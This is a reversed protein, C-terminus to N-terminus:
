CGLKEEILCTFRVFVMTVEVVLNKLLNFILFGITRIKLQLVICIHGPFLLFKLAMCAAYFELNLCQFRLKPRILLHFYFSQPIMMHELNKQQTRTCDISSTVLLKSLLLLKVFQKLNARYFLKFSPFLFVMFRHNIVEVQWSSPAIAFPVFSHPPWIVFSERFSISTPQVVEIRDTFTLAELHNCTEEVTLGM